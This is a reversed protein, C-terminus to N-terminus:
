ATKPTVLSIGTLEVPLSKGKLSVPGLDEMAIWYPIRLRQALESSAILRQDHQNCMGQIRSATNLVDGNYVIDKKLDGIEATIVHGVHVGAKYEPVVGYRSLYSERKKRLVWDVEFFVQLCNANDLGAKVPWTLVVEDGVYQYIEASANIAPDTLDRFFSNLLGYYSEPALSEAIETSGKMDLFMFIREERKPYHYKGTLYRLLIGPGLLRDLDRIFLIVIYLGFTIAVRSAFEASTIWENFEAVSMGKMAGGLLGLLAFPIAIALINLVARSLVAALFPLTRLWRALRSSEVVALALGLVGGITPGWASLGGSDVFEFVIGIVAFLLVLTWGSRLRRNSARAGPMRLMKSPDM